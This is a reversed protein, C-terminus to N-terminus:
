RGMLDFDKVNERGLEVSFGKLTVIEMFAHSKWQWEVTIDGVTKQEIPNQPVESRKPFWAYIAV